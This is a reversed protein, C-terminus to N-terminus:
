KNKKEEEQFKKADALVQQFKAAAAADEDHERLLKGLEDARKQEEPTLAM